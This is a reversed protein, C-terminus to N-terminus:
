AAGDLISLRRDAGDISVVECYGTLRSAIAEGFGDGFQDVISGPTKNMTVLLSRAGAIRSDIAAFLQQAVWESGKAKDLDDLALSGKGSIADVAAVREEDDFARLSNALMIPVSAWRTPTHLQREWVAAAAITTKGTGVPGTFLLGPVEGAVWARARSIAKANRPTLQLEDLSRRLGAPVSSFKERSSYRERDASAAEEAQMRVTCTPCVWGLRNLATGLKGDAVHRKGATGCACTVTM